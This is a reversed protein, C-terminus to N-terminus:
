RDALPLGPAFEDIRLRSYPTLSHQQESTTDNDADREIFPKFDVERSDGGLDVDM